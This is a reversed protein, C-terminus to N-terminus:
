LEEWWPEFVQTPDNLHVKEGIKPTLVRTDYDAALATIKRFPEDWDHIALTFKGSHVPFIAKANLDSAAKFQEGPLMHIYRWSQNYQGNELVALDFPGYKEGIDKFHSDYGSDGGIYLSFSPTKVVFSAWLTQNRKLGRGSFHRAPTVAVVFGHGFDFERYWDGEQIQGPTFGWHELHAGNGLGTVVTSIKSRLKKLTNVDMHDWHDHSLFLYDIAPLDEPTYIDTGKYARTTFSVPSAYGSLVPDVLMKKGDLQIFYTSHGMWILVNEDANLAKLDTKVSPLPQTPVKPNSSFFYEYLVEGYSVGKTLTPTHNLNKFSGHEFNPSQEILQKREGSPHKGFRETNLFGLTSVGMLIVIFVLGAIMKKILAIHM